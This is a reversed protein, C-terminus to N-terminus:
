HHDGTFGLLGCEPGHYPDRRACPRTMIAHDVPGAATPPVPVGQQIRESRIFTNQEQARLYTQIMEAWLGAGTKAEGLGDLEGPWDM